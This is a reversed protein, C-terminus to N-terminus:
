KKIGGFGIQAAISPKGTAATSGPMSPSRVQSGTMNSPGPSSGNGVCEERKIDPHDLFYTLENSHNPYKKSEKKSAKKKKKM